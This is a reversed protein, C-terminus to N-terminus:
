SSYIVIIKTHLAFNKHVIALIPFLPTFCCQICLYKNISINKQWYFNPRKDQRPHELWLNDICAQSRPPTFSPPLETQVPVGCMCGCVSIHSTCTWWKWQTMHHWLNCSFMGELQIECFGSGDSTQRADSVDYIRLRPTKRKNLKQDTALIMQCWRVDGSMLWRLCMLRIMYMGTGKARM